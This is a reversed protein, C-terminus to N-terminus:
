VSSHQGYYLSCPYLVTGNIYYNLNWEAKVCNTTNYLLKLGSICSKCLMEEDSYKGEYCENCSEHCEEISFAILIFILFFKLM